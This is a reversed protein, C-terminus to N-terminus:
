RGMKQLTRYPHMARPPALIEAWIIGQVVPNAAARGPRYRTSQQGVTKMTGDVPLISKPGGETSVTGETDEGEALLTAALQVEESPSLPRNSKARHVGAPKAAVPEPERPPPSIPPLTHGKGTNM